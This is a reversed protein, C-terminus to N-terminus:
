SRDNSNSKELEDILINALHVVEGPRVWVFPHKEGRGRMIRFGTKCSKVTLADDDPVPTPAPM